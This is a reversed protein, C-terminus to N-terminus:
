TVNAKRCSGDTQTQRRRRQQARGVSNFSEDINKFYRIAQPSTCKTNSICLNSFYTFLLLLRQYNSFILFILYVMINESSFIM